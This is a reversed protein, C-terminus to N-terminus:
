NNKQSHKHSVSHEPENKLKISTPCFRLNFYIYNWNARVSSSAKVFSDVGM